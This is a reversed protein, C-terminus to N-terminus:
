AFWWRESLRQGDLELNGAFSNHKLKATAAEVIDAFMPIIVGGQDSVLRQMEVYMARRKKKDLESRAEVLLKNFRENKWFTDNWNSSAAYATSFMPDPTSRGAWYCMCWPKKLWVNDWYGDNPERVVDIKIGAKAASERFLLATDIAGAFAADSAHLKFTHDLKGAKKMLHRAKEPDYKRQPFDAETAHFPYTPGIPQDNGLTGYGRLIVKLMQKRDVALKLAMRVDPDDFPPTDTRMPMSYHLPSAARVVQIGPMKELFHVTKLECRDMLDIQKTKLANTRASVDAIHLTEVEDFHARGKKWYNPNRKTLARVGPEHKILSYGGTGIGKEFEQGKTGAPFIVLHYDSAIYPFDADGGKLTFTVTYKDDAKIEVIPAVISKAESKSKEGRHHDFSYIVDEASFPKGNHFEIGKRLKFTWKKADPSSEWSEALEPIANGKHDIEVLCNRLQFNIFVPMTSALTAPDLSDTSAGGTAGVRLRGGRKPKAAFASGPFLAPSVAVALGSAASLALFERRSIKGMKLLNELRKFSDM